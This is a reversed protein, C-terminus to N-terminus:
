DLVVWWGSPPEGTPEVRKLGLAALFTFWGHDQRRYMAWLRLHEPSSYPTYFLLLGSLKGRATPYGAAQLDREQESM